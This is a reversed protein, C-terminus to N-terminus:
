EFLVSRHIGGESNVNKELRYKRRNQVGRAVTLRSWNSNGKLNPARGMQQSATAPAKGRFAATPATSRWTEVRHYSNLGKM